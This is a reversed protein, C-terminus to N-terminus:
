SAGKWADTRLKKASIDKNKMLGASSFFSGSIPKKKPDRTTSGVFNFQSLLEMIFNLKTKDKVTLTIKEM